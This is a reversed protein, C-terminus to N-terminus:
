SGWVQDSLRAFIVSACQNNPKLTGKKLKSRAVWGGAGFRFEQGVSASLGKAGFGLFRTFVKYGTVRFGREM